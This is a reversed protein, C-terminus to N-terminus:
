ILFVCCRLYTGGRNQPLALPLFPAESLHILVAFVTQPTVAEEAPLASSKLAVTLAPLHKPLLACGVANGPRSLQSSSPAANNVSSSSQGTSASALAASPKAASKKCCAMEAKEPPATQCHHGAAPEANVTAPQSTALDTPDKECCMACGFGNLWLLLIM